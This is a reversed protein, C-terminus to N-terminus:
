LAPKVLLQYLLYGKFIKYKGPDGVKSVSLHFGEKLSHWHRVHLEYQKGKVDADITNKVTMKTTDVSSMPATLGVGIAKLASEKCTWMRYFETGKQEASSSKLVEVEPESFHRFAIKLLDALKEKESFEIDVGIEGDTSVCIVIYDKSHSINFQINFESHDLKLKGFDTRLFHIEKVPLGTHFSLVCRAMLRSYSFEWLRKKAKMSRTTEQEESDLWEFVNDRDVILELESMRAIYIRTFGPLDESAQLLSTHAVKSLRGDLQPLPNL